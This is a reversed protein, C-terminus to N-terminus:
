VMLRWAFGLFSHTTGKTMAGASRQRAVPPVDSGEHTWPSRIQKKKVEKQLKKNYDDEEEKTVNHDLEVAPRANSSSYNYQKQEELRLRTTITFTRFQAGAHSGANPCLFSPEIKTVIPSSLRAYASTRRLAALFSVRPKM